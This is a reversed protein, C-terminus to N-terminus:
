QAVFLLWDLYRNRSRKHRPTWVQEVLLFGAQPLALRLKAEDRMKRKEKHGVGHNSSVAFFVAGDSLLLHAPPNGFAAEVGLGHDLRFAVRSKAREGGERFKRGGKRRFSGLGGRWGDKWAGGTQRFAIVVQVDASADRGTPVHDFAVEPRAHADGKQHHEGGRNDVLDGPQERPRHNIPQNTVVAQGRAPNEDETGGGDDASRNVDHQDRTQIEVKEFQNAAL